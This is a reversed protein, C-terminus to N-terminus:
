QDNNDQISTGCIRELVKKVHEVGRKNIGNYSPNYISGVASDPNKYVKLNLNTSQIVSLDM